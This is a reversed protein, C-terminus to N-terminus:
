LGGRGTVPIAKNKKKIKCGHVVREATDTSRFYAYEPRDSLTRM